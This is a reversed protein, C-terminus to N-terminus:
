KKLGAQWNVMVTISRSSEGSPKTNVLFRQGDRTTLQPFVTTSRIGSDFLAKPVGAELTASAKTVVAKVEVATLKGDPAIYFLEKGDRRWAPFRGGATSVQWKGGPGVSAGGEQRGPTPSFPQVYVEMRGTENSTYALWHADPSFKGYVEDFRTHLFAFPKRDGDLPLVWLDWLTKSDNSGYVIFRGDSSWDCAVKMEDSKVLLEENAAGSTAKQYLNRQGDRNSDFVIRSGDASWIPFEDVAPDFTFRSATSRALDLLWIDLNASLSRQVAVRNGDPSLRPHDDGPSGVTGLRKGERDFWVLQTSPPGVIWHALVGNASVSFFALATPDPDAVREAVPLPEDSLELRDPNFRQAM